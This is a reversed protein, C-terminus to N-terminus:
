NSSRTIDELRKRLEEVERGVKGVRRSLSFLYFGLSLWVLGYGLMLYRLGGNTGRHQALTGEQADDVSSIGAASQGSAPAEAPNAAVPIRDAVLLAVSLIGILAASVLLRRRM